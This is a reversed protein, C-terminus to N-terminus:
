SGYLTILYPENKFSNYRGIGAQRCVPTFNTNKWKFAITYNRLQHNYIARGIHMM